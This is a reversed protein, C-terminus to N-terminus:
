AARQEWLRPQPTRRKGRYVEDAPPRGGDTPDTVTAALAAAAEKLSPSKHLLFKELAEALNDVVHWRDAVLM